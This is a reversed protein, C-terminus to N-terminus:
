ILHHRMAVRFVPVLEDGSCPLCDFRRAIQYGSTGGATLGLDVDAVSASALLRSVDFIGGSNWPSIHHGNCDDQNERDEPGHHREARKLAAVHHKRTEEQHDPNGERDITKPTRTAALAAASSSDPAHPSDHPRWGDGSKPM